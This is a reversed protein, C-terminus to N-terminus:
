RRTAEGDTVAIDRPFFLELVWDLCVRVKKELGPLKALYVARWLVWAAFGSLRLGRVDAVATRHGLAVLTGQTRFDFPRLAGGRIAAAINDACARGQRLAHQATPPYADGDTARRAAPVPVTACDGVAWLREHGQVRLMDDAAVTGGRGSAFGAIGILPAPRTGATWVLTCAAITHERDGEGDRVTLRVEDDSAGAVRAGLVFEIGRRRLRGLAFGALRDGIEPLIRDRSHVLVVRPADDVLGPYFRQVSHVLDFLEAAAEAGAFGGGAVVFTLLRRRTTPDSEHEARELM